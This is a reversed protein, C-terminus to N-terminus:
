TNYSYYQDIVELLPWVGGISYKYADFYGIYTPKNTVLDTVATHCIVVLCLLLSMCWAGGELDHIVVKVSMNLWSSKM